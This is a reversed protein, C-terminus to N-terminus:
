FLSEFDSMLKEINAQLFANKFHLCHNEKQLLFSRLAKLEIDPM